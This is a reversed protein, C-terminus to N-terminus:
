TFEFITWYEWVPGYIQMTTVLNWGRKFKQYLIKKRQNFVNTFAGKRPQKGPTEGCHKFHGITVFYYTHNEFDKPNYPRLFTNM